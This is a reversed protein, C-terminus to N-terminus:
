AREGQMLKSVALRLRRQVASATQRDMVASGDPMLSFMVMQLANRVDEMATEEEIGAM